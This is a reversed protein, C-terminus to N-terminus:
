SHPAEVTEAPMGDDDAQAELRARLRFEDRLWDIGERLETRAWERLWTDPDARVVRFGGLLGLHM